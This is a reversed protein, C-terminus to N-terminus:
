VVSQPNDLLAQEKGCYLTGLLKHKVDLTYVTYPFERTGYYCEARGAIGVPVRKYLKITLYDASYEQYLPLVYKDWLEKDIRKAGYARLIAGFGGNKVFVKRAHRRKTAQKATWPSKSKNRKKKKRLALRKRELLALMREELRRTQNSLRARTLLSPILLPNVTVSSPDVKSEAILADDSVRAQKLWESDDVLSTLPDNVSTM